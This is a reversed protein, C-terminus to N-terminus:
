PVGTGFQAVGTRTLKTSDDYYFDLTLERVGDAATSPAFTGRPDGTLATATTADALVFTGANDALVDDWGVRVLRNRSKLVMPLGLKDVTGVEVATGLTATVAVRTVAFFAKKTSVTTANPGTLTEVVPSKYFDYGFVSFQVASLNGTSFLGVCRGFSDVGFDLYARGDGRTMVGNIILNGAGTRTQSLCIGDRDLVPPVFMLLAKGYRARRNRAGLRAPGMMVADVFTTM